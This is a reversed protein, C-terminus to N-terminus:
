GTGSHASGAFGEFRLRRSETEEDSDSDSSLSMMEAGESERRRCVVAARVAGLDVRRRGSTRSMTRRVSALWAAGEFDEMWASAKWGVWGSRRVEPSSLVNRSYWMSPFVFGGAVERCIRWEGNIDATKWGEPVRMMEPPRRLYKWTQFRADPCTSRILM